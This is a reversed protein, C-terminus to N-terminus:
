YIGHNIDAPKFLKFCFDGAVTNKMSINLMHWSEPTFVGEIPPNEYKYPSKVVFV